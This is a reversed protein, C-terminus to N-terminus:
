GNKPRPKPIAENIMQDIGSIDFVDPTSRILNQATRQFIGPVINVRKKNNGRGPTSNTPTFGSFRRV